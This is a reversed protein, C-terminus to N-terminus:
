DSLMNEIFIGYGGTSDQVFVHTVAGVLKGNQIVPSGSMGQVIGGTQELLKEDTVNIVFSKNTDQHNYDIKTIEVDYEEVQGNVACLISAAGLEMDQKYGVELMQFDIGDTNDIKGYIGNDNNGEITGIVNSEDYRILGSLEGPTGKTGKHIGVIEANYLKGDRINLLEGTDVDSIGHGLAGYNGYEDVYTLTGIGQTDDRVWIGLKYDGETSKIPCVSLEIEEGRRILSLEVDGGECGHIANILDSKSRIPQQNFATIYDGPQVLNGAPEYYGGDEGQIEETDVILIGETAMYIGVTNGCAYVAEPQVVEVKVNKLFVTNMIKCPITFSSGQSVAITKEWTVFPNSFIQELEDQGETIRVEDPISNKLQSYGLAIMAALAVAAASVLIIRYRKRWKDVM